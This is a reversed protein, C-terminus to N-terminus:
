KFKMGYATIENTVQNMYFHVQVKVGDITVSQTTMKAWDSINSGNSTLAKVVNPDGLKTGPIISKSNQIFQARLTGNTFFVEEAKQISDGSLRSNNAINPIGKDGFYTGIRALTALFAESTAGYLAAAKVAVFSAGEVVAAGTAAVPGYENNINNLPGAIYKDVQQQMANGLSQDWSKNGGTGQGSTGATKAVSPQSVKKNGYMYDTLADRTIAGFYGTVYKGDLYGKNRLFIQLQKVDEGKGAFWKVLEEKASDTWHRAYYSDTMEGPNYPRGIAERFIYYNWHAEKTNEGD